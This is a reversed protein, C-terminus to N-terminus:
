SGGTVLDVFRRRRVPPLALIEAESWSYARALADIDLLLVQAQAVVRSWTFEVVDLVARVPAACEPCTLDLDVEALPDALAMAEVLRAREDPGVSAGDLCRALVADVAAADDDAQVAVVLDDYSVPRWRTGGSTHWGANAEPAAQALDATAVAFEATAGCGRCEATGELEPGGLEEFLALLRATTRGVPELPERGAGPAYEALLMAREPLSLREGADLVFLLDLTM